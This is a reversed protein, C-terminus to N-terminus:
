NAAVKEETAANMINKLRETEAIVKNAYGTAPDSPAGAYQQLGAVLSGNRGIYEKLVLAGVRINETPDLLSRKENTAKGQHFRPVVQMLGQAGFPSEAFPNFSSEVGVVAVILLPDLDVSQGAKEASIILPEIASRSVHYRRALYDTVRAMGPSLTGEAHPVWDAPFASVHRTPVPLAEPASATAVVPKAKLLDVPVLTDEASVTQEGHGALRAPLVGNWGHQSVRLGVFLTVILGSVLLGGHAFHLVFVGFHRAFSAARTAYIM